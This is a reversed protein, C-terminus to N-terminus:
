STLKSRPSGNLSSNIKYPTLDLKWTFIIVENPNVIRISEGWIDIADIWAIPFNNNIDGSGILLLSGISQFYNTNNTYTNTYTVIYNNLTLSTASSTLVFANGFIGSIGNNAYALGPSNFAIINSIKFSTTSFSSTVSSSSLINKLNSKFTDHINGSVSNVSNNAIDNLDINWQIGISQTPFLTEYIRNTLDMTNISAFPFYSYAGSTVSYNNKISFSGINISQITNDASPSYIYNQSVIFSFNDMSSLSYTNKGSNNLISLPYGILTSLTNGYAISADNINNFAYIGVSNVSNLLASSNAINGYLSFIPNISLASVGFNTSDSSTRNYQGSYFLNSLASLFQPHISNYGTYKKNNITLVVKNHM